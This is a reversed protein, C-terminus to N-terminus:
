ELVLSCGSSKELKALLGKLIEGTRSDANEHATQFLEM